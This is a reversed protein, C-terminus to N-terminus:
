DGSSLVTSLAPWLARVLAEIRAASREESQELPTYLIVIQLPQDREGALLGRFRAWARGSRSTILEDGWQFWYYVLLKEGSRELKMRWIRVAPDVRGLGPWVPVLTTETTTWGHSPLCVTPEHLWGETEVSVGVHLRVASGDKRRYDIAACYDAGSLERIQPDVPDPKGVFVPDGAELPIRALRDPIRAADASTLARASYWSRGVYTGAAGLVLLILVTARVLRTM